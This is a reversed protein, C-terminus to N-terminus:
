SRTPERRSAFALLMAFFPLLPVRYRSLTGMNTTSLGVGLGMVLVFFTMFVREPSGFLLDLLQRGRRVVALVSLILFASSEVASVASLANHVEFVFPRYLSTGVALPALVLQAALSPAEGMMMYNSGGEVSAGVVQRHLLEEGIGTLAFEPLVLGVAWLGVVGGFATAVVLRPSFKGDNRWALMFASGAVLTAALIYPKLLYMLLTGVAALGVGALRRGQFFSVVGFVALGLGTMAFSEKLLGSTWFVLSPTCLVLAAVRWDFELRIRERAARYLLLLGLSATVAACVNAAFFSDGLLLVIWTAIGQMSGTSSGSMEAGPLMVSAKLTMRLLDPGFSDPAREVFTALLSGKAFYATSDGAGYLSTTVFVQAAAALLHAVYAIM